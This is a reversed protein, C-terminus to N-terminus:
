WHAAQSWAVALLSATMLLLPFGLVAMGVSANNILRATVYSGIGRLGIAMAYGVGDIVVNVAGRGGAISSVVRDGAM